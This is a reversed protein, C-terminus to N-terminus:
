FISVKSFSIIVGIKARDRCFHLCTTKCGTVFLLESVDPLKERYCGHGNEM